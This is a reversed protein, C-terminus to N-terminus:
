KKNYLQHKGSPFNMLSLTNDNIGLIEYYMTDIKNTLIIFEAKETQKVFKPLKDTLNIHYVDDHSSLMGKYEFSCLNNKIIISSLSDEENFWIGSLQELISKNTKYSVFEFSNYRFVKSKEPMEPTKREYTTPVGKDLYFQGTLRLYYKFHGETFYDEPIKLNLNVPEIYICDESRIEYNKDNEFYKREIFDACDCAWNIYSVEITEEIGSLNTAQNSCSMLGIIGLIWIFNLLKIKQKLAM